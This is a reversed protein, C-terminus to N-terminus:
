AVAEGVLLVHRPQDQLQARQRLRHDRGDVARRGAEAQCEREAAVDAVGRALGQEAGREDVDAHRVAVHADAPEQRPQDAGRARMLQHEGPAAYIGLPRQPDPEDGVDDSLGDQGLAGDFGRRLDGRERREAHAQRLAPHPRRQLHGGLERGDFVLVALLDHLREAVAHGLCYARAQLLARGLAGVSWSRGVILVSRNSTDPLVASTVPPERPIPTIIARPSTCAPARTTTEERLRASTSPAAASSAPSPSQTATGPSMEVGSPAASSARAPLSCKPPASSMRTLLAPATHPAGSSSNGGAPQSFTRLVFTSPMKWRVTASSGASRALASRAAGARTILM